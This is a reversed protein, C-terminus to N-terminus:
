SSSAWLWIALPILVWALSLLVIAYVAFDYSDDNPASGCAYSAIPVLPGLRPLDPARAGNRDLVALSRMAMRHAEEFRDPRWLPLVMSLESVIDQEPKGTGAIEELLAHTNPLEVSATRETM